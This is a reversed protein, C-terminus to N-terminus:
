NALTTMIAEEAIEACAIILSWPPEGNLSNMGKKGVGHEGEQWWICSYANDQITGLHVKMVMESTIANVCNNGAFKAAAGDMCCSWITLYLFNFNICHKILFSLWKHPEPNVCNPLNPYFSLSGPCNVGMCRVLPNKLRSILHRFHGFLSDFYFSLRHLDCFLRDHSWATLCMENVIWLTTHGKDWIDLWLLFHSHVCYDTEHKWKAAGHELLLPCETVSPLGSSIWLM